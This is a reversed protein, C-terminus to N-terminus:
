CALILMHHPHSRRWMGYRNDGHRAGHAPVFSALMHEQFRKTVGHWPCGGRKWAAKTKGIYFWGSKCDAVLYVAALPEWSVLREPHLGCLLFYVSTHWESSCFDNTWLCKQVVPALCRVPMRCKELRGPTCSVMVLEVVSLVTCAYWWGHTHSSEDGGPLVRELLAWRIVQM